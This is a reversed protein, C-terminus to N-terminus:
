ETTDQNSKQENIQAKEKIDAARIHENSIKMFRMIKKFMMINTIVFAIAIAVFLIKKNTGFHRDLLWGAGGLFFVPGLIATVNFM